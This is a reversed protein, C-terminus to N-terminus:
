VFPYRAPVVTDDVDYGLYDHVAVVGALSRAADVLAPIMLKREVSGRLTVVGDAVSLTLRASDRGLRHRIAETLYSRIQEDSRRFVRLLDARAVIGVLRQGDDVVPLRRVRARAATRAADVVSDQPAVTIAPTSMLDAAIEGRVKRRIQKRERLRGAVRAHPDGAAAVKALLDSESVVGLVRAAPDLVPLASVRHRALTDVIQKFTAHEGVVIVDETMVDRVQNAAWPYPQQDTGAEGAPEGAVAALYRELASDHQDAEANPTVGDAARGHLASRIQEGM